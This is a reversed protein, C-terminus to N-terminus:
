SDYIIVVLNEEFITYIDEKLVVIEAACTISM